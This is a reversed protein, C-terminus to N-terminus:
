RHRRRRLALLLLAPIFIATWGHKTNTSCGGCGETVSLGPMSPMGEEIACEADCGDELDTNGDDCTEGYELRANGCVSAELQCTADCGNGDDRGGDDCEEGRDQTGNGCTMGLMSVDPPDLDCTATCGDGDSTNGDDCQEGYEQAGNGCASPEVECTASCGDGGDNDGDDCAEGFHHVGDGCGEVGCRATCGDGDALNGDDCAEGADVTGDGCADPDELQCFEDCGDGNARAGDDCQEGVGVTGDGCADPNELLCDKNCGDGDALNGDDCQEGIGPRRDGCIEFLCEATCGDGDIANADDCDEGAGPLGDGCRETTCSPSCGDEAVDNGDDCEEDGARVLADGCIANRCGATCAATDSVAAGTDCEESTQMVGDGCRELVCDDTCGDNDGNAGDDCEESAQVVGDGCSEDLCLASCGDDSVRNGDDCTEGIATETTGNGCLDIMARMCGVCWAPPSAGEDCQEGASTQLFGDGCAAAVCATTCDDFDSENGDDCAEGGGAPPGDGIGLSTTGTNVDTEGGPLPVVSLRATGRSLRVTELVPDGSASTDFRLASTMNSQLAFGIQTRGVFGTVRAVNFPLQGRVTASLVDITLPRGDIADGIRAALPTGSLEAHIPGTTVRIGSAAVLPTDIISTADFGITYEIREGALEGFFSGRPVTPITFHGTMCYDYGACGCEAGTCTERVFGDGCSALECTNLCADANSPNGDDCEETAQVIGNGCVERVCTASCGDADDTNGDDCEEPATTRGDGCSLRECHDSCMPTPDDCEEGFQLIGDGCNPTVATYMARCATMTATLETRASASSNGRGAAYCFAVTRQDGPLLPGSLLMAVAGQKESRGDAEDHDGSVEPDLMFFRFRNQQTTSSGLQALSFNMDINWNYFAFAGPTPAGIAAPALGFWYHVEPDTYPVTDYTMVMQGDFATELDYATPEIDFDAMKSAGVFPYVRTTDNVITYVVLYASVGNVVYTRQHVTLDTRYGHFSSPQLVSDDDGSLELVGSAGPISSLSAEISMRVDMPVGISELGSVFDTVGYVRVGSNHIRPDNPDSFDGRFATDQKLHLLEILDDIDATAWDFSGDSMRELTELAAVAEVVRELIGEIEMVFAALDEDTLEPALMMALGTPDMAAVSQLTSIMSSPTSLDSREIGIRELEAWDIGPDSVVLTLRCHPCFDESNGDTPDYGISFSYGEGLGGRDDVRARRTMDGGFHWAETTQASASSSLSLLLVVIVTSRM